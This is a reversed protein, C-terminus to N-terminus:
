ASLRTQVCRPHVTSTVGFVTTQGHWPLTNSREPLMDSYSPRGNAAAMMVMGSVSFLGYNNDNDSGMHGDGVRTSPFYSNFNATNSPGGDHNGVAMGYKMGADDLATLAGKTVILKGAIDWQATDSANDVIDGLHSTYVINRTDKNAVLWETQADFMARLGSNTQSSYYQTDPLVALTFNPATSCAPRGYFTVSLNTLTDPDSVTAQLDVHNAPAPPDEPQLLVGTAGIAPEPSAPLNPRLTANFPADGTWNWGLRKAPGACTSTFRGASLARSKESALSSRASGM